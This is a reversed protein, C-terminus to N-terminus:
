CWLMVVQNDAESPCLHWPQEREQTSFCPCTSLSTLLRIRCCSRSAIDDDLGQPLMLVTPCHRNEQSLGQVRPYIPVDHPCSSEMAFCFAGHCFM